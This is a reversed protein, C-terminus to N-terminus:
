DEHAHTHTHIHERARARTLNSCKYYPFCAVSPSFTLSILQCAIAAVSSLQDRSSTRLTLRKKHALHTEGNCNLAVQYLHVDYPSTTFKSCSTLLCHLTSYFAVLSLWSSSPSLMVTRGLADLLYTLGSRTFSSNQPTASQVFILLNLSYNTPITSSRVLHTM